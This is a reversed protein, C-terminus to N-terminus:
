ESETAVTGFSHNRSNGWKWKDYQLIHTYTRICTNITSCFIHTHVCTLIQEVAFHTHTHTHTRLHTFTRTCKHIRMCIYARMSALICVCTYARIYHEMRRRAFGIRACTCQTCTYFMTHARVNHAHIFGIRACTCQTGAYFRHIRVYM